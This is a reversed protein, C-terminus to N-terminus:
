GDRHVALFARLDAEAIRVARGFRHAVLDGRDIWRRVSRTCVGTLGATEAITYFHVTESSRRRPALRRPLQTAPM